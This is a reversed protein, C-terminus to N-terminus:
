VGRGFKKYIIVETKIKGSYFIIQNIWQYKWSYIEDVDHDIGNKKFHLEIM